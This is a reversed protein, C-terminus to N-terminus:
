KPDDVEVDKGDYTIKPFQLLTIRLSLDKAIVPCSQASAQPSKKTKRLLFKGHSGFVLVMLWFLCGIVFLVCFIKRAGVSANNVNAKSRFVYSLFCVVGVLLINYNVLGDFPGNGGPIASLYVSGAILSKGGNLIDALWHSLVIISAMRWPHLEAVRVLVGAMAPKLAYIGVALYVVVLIIIPIINSIPHVGNADCGPTYFYVSGFICFAVVGVDFLRRLWFSKSSLTKMTFKVPFLWWAWVVLLLSVGACFLTWGDFVIQKGVGQSVNQVFVTLNM